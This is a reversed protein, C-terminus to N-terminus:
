RATSGAKAWEEPNVLDLRPAGGGHSESNPYSLRWFGGLKPDKYLVFWGDNSTAVRQLENEILYQIRRSAADLEEKGKDMIWQGVVSTEGVRLSLSM